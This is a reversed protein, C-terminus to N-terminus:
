SLARLVVYCVGQAGVSRATSSAHAMTVVTRTVPKEVRRASTTAM